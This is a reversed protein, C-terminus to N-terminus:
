DRKSVFVPSGWAMHGNKQRVRVYVYNKQKPLRVTVRDSLSSAELRVVRHFFGSEAPFPGTSVLESSDMLAAMGFTRNLEAPRRMRLDLQAEPIAEGALELILSQNPNQRYADRRATYSVVRVSGTDTQEIRHRRDEDFPGSQLCPFAGAITAGRVVLDFEWDCTRDLHLDGWPGWGWEFRLQCTSGPSLHDGTPELVAGATPYSRHVVDGNVVLEVVDLEDRGEIDYSVEVENGGEIVSGMACGDVSFRVGIRDGTLAITRRNRIAELIASRSLERSWVGMLGEGYAGPFGRHNDSSAVFGFRLGRDLAFRATNATVRGGMSHTFYPYAGRDDEANGHESYIEVVPTCVEDFVDWNVGRRGTAYALHHPIMLGGHELSYSRLGAISDPFVLPHKDDPLIVCQDGFQSSHWEFGLFAAFEDRRNAEATLRQVQPWANRLREFGQYWHKERGGEMAQIDHWSSHGTFAFFDLHTQAIDISRELSGLGYGLANHNHIDGFFLTENSDTM